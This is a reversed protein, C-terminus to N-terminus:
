RSEGYKINQYRDIPLNHFIEKKGDWWFVEVDVPNINSGLGFLLRPDNQGRYGNGPNKERTFIPGDKIKIVARSGLADKSNLPGVLNLGIWHGSIKSENHYILLPGGNNGIIIDMLGDNDYDILAISQGEELDKIGTEETVDYFKNGKNWFLCNREFGSQVFRDFDPYFDINFRYEPPTTALTNRVFAFSKKADKAEKVKLGRAKGNIVFLDMLGDNDFDAFKAGWAWGCRAVGQEQAINHFGPGGNDKKWLINKSTVYPPVYMNTVFLSQVGSNDFDAWESNMGSFGHEHRPILDTADVVNNGNDNKLLADYYYDNSLFIDPFGDNDFDHIGISTTHAKLNRLAKFKDIPPRTFGNNSGFFIEASGGSGAGAQGFIHSLPLYNKLDTDPYYNGFIVDLWGDKNFDIVNIVKPNSCYKPFKTSTIFKNETISWELYSHCGMRSLLVDTYGDRNFDAFFAMSGPQNKPFDSLGFKNGVEEFGHGQKNHFFLNPLKVDPQVFYFDYYGDGDLDVVSVSPPISMLPLYSKTNKNPFYYSHKVNVGLEASVERFKFPVTQLIERPAAEEYVNRSILRLRDFGFIITILIIAVIPGFVNQFLVISNKLFLRM